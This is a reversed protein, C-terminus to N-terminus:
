FVMSVLGVNIWQHYCLIGNILQEVNKSNEYQFNCKTIECLMIISGDKIDEHVEALHIVQKFRLIEFNIVELPITRGIAEIMKSTSQTIKATEISINTILFLTFSNTKLFIIIKCAKKTRIIKLHSVM